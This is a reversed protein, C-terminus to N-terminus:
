EQKGDALLEEVTIVWPETRKGFAVRVKYRPAQENRNRSRQADELLDFLARHELPINISDILLDTIRGKWEKENEIRSWAPRILALMFIYKSSDPYTNRLVAKDLGADIAFLRSNHLQESQLKESADEVRKEFEKQGPNSALLAQQVDLEQETSAVVRQHTAGNYELVLYVKHPLEKEFAPLGTSKEDRPQLKFGLDILKQKNLWAPNGRCNRSGYSYYKVAEIRCNIRLGLGTNEKNMRYRFPLGLERETLEVVADPEGARNYAVGALAAVNTVIIIALGAVLIRYDPKM